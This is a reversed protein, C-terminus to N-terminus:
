RRRSSPRSCTGCTRRRTATADQSSSRPSGLKPLEAMRVLFEADVLADDVATPAARLEPEIEFEVAKGGSRLREPWLLYAIPLAVSVSSRSCSRADTSLRGSRHEGVLDTAAGLLVLLVIILPPATVGNLIAAYYLGRIPDLGALEVRARRADLRPDCTSAAQGDALARCARTGTSRRPSARVRDLRGAGPVALLGLGVIGLAFVLEAADGPSRSSHAAGGARRHAITTVGATHLTSPPSVMIAFAVAVASVMGGIVDVRMAALHARELPEHEADPEVAEEVEESAQWFFLYPSVTTGFVAILAALGAAGGALHPVFLGHM